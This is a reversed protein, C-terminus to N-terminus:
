FLQAKRTKLWHHVNPLTGAQKAYKLIYLKSTSMRRSHRAKNYNKLSRHEWRFNDRLHTDQHAAHSRIKTM